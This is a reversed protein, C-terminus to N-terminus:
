ISRVGKQHWALFSVVEDDEAAFPLSRLHAKAQFAPQFSPLHPNRSRAGHVANWSRPVSPSIPNQPWFIWVAQGIFLASSTSFFM